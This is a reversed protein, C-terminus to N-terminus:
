LEERPARKGFSSWISGDYFGINTCDRKIADRPFLDIFIGVMPSQSKLNTWM